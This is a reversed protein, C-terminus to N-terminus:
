KRARFEEWSTHIKGASKNWPERKHWGNTNYDYRRRGKKNMWTTVVNDIVCGVPIVKRAKAAEENVEKEEQRIGSAAGGHEM